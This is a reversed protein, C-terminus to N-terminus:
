SNIQATALERRTFVTIGFIAFLGGLILVIQGVAQGVMGWTISRGSSLSDIPSFGQVLNIVKLLNRFLPIMILDALSKSDAKGTDHNVNGITGSEVAHSLTSSSVGVILVAISFFAAVPFSLYSAAALGIAALLALWCLIILLGRIFNLGFGGDRYLLEFGDEVPFLIATQDRNQFDITLKGNADWLNSPIAFEHFTDGAFSRSQVRVATTEPPGVQVVGRYLGSINTQAPHFKIRVFLPADKLLYRKPGLDFEWRRFHDVDVLQYPAKLAEEIQKQFLQEEVSNLANTKKFDSLVKEAATKVDPVPERMSARAAFIENHLIQQEPASLRGARWKLLFFVTGGGIALLAANLLLIGTWKGLWIQWRGVPKVVVLQMQAEEIDRALTGCSLWLTVFGLLGTIISLTYTLLIQALGRASGDDEILIPLTVVAIMLLAAMVWFLRFRFAAKWTLGVIALWRRM